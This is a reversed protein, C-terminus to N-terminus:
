LDTTHLHILSLDSELIINFNIKIINTSNITDDAILDDIFM